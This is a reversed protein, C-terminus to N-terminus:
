REPVPFIISRTRNAADAILVIHTGPAQDPGIFLWTTAHGNANTRLLADVIVTGDALTDTGDLATAQERDINVQVETNSLATGARDIVDIIVAVARTGEPVAVPAEDQPALQIAIVAEPIGGGEPVAVLTGRITSALQTQSEQTIPKVRLQKRPLRRMAAIRSSIASTPADTSPTAAPSEQESLDMTMKLEFELQPIRYRVNSGDGSPQVSNLREQAQAMGDALSVLYDDLTSGTAIDNASIGDDPM